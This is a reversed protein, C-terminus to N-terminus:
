LSWWLFTPWAFWWFGFGRVAIAMLPNLASKKPALGTADAKSRREPAVGASLYFLLVVSIASASETM